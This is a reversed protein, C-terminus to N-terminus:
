VHRDGLKAVALVLGQTAHRLFDDDLLLLLDVRHLQRGFPQGRGPGRANGGRVDALAPGHRGGRAVGDREFAMSMVFRRRRRVLTARATEASLRAADPPWAGSGAEAASRGTECRSRM